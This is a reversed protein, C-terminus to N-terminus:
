AAPLPVDSDSDEAWCEYLHARFTAPTYLGLWARRDKELCDVCAFGMEACGKVRDLWPVRVFGVRRMRNGPESEEQHSSRPPGWPPVGDMLQANRRGTEANIIGLRYEESRAVWAAKSGHLALAETRAGVTDYLTARHGTPAIMRGRIGLACKQTCLAQYLMDVSVHAGLNIQAIGHLADRAHTSIAAHQSLSRVPDAARTSTARLNLLTDIGLQGLIDQLLEPPLRELGGAGSPSRTWRRPTDPGPPGKRGAPVSEALTYRTKPQYAHNRFAIPLDPIQEKKM